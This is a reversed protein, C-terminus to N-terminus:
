RATRFPTRFKTNSGGAEVDDDQGGVVGVADGGRVGTDGGRVGIEGTSWPYGSVDYRSLARNVRRVESAASAVASDM